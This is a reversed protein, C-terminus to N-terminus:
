ECARTPDSTMSNRKSIYRKLQTPLSDLASTAPVADMEDEQTFEGATPSARAAFLATSKKRLVRRSGDHEPPGAPIARDEARRAVSPASARRAWTM